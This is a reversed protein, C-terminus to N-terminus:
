RPAPPVSAPPRPGDIAPPSGTARHLTTSPLEGFLDRYDAAFRGPDFFGHAFCVDTVRTTGPSSSSKLARRALHLRRRRLYRGPSMGFMEMFFRRLSRDSMGLAVCLDETYVPEDRRGELYEQCRMVSARCRAASEAQPALTCDLLRGLLLDQLRRCAADNDLFEPYRRLLDIGVRGAHELARMQAAQPRFAAFERLSRGPAGAERAARRADYEEPPMQLAIWDVVDAAGVLFDGGAPMLNVTGAEVLAGNLTWRPPPQTPFFFWHNSSCVMGTAALAAGMQGSTLLTADLRAETFRWERAERSLLSLELEMGPFGETAAEIDHFNRERVVRRHVVSGMASRFQDIPLLLLFIICMRAPTELPAAGFFCGERIAPIVYFGTRAAAM